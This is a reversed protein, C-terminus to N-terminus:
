LRSDSKRHELSRKGLSRLMEKVSAYLSYVNLIWCSVRCTIMDINWWVLTYYAMERLSSNQSRIYRKLFGLLWSASTTTNLFHKKPSLNNSIETSLYKSGVVSKLFKVMCCISAPVPTRCRTIPLKSPNFESDREMELHDHNQQLIHADELSSVAM